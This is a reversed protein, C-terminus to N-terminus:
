GHVVELAPVATVPVSRAGCDQCQWDEVGDTLGFDVRRDLPHRCGTAAPAPITLADELVIAIRELALRVGRLEARLETGGCAPCTAGAGITGVGNCFSCSM